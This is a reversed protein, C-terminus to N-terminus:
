SGCCTRRRWSRRKTCSPGSRHGWMNVCVYVCARAHFSCFLLDLVAPTLLQTLWVEEARMGENEAVRIYLERILRRVFFARMNRQPCPRACVIVATHRLVGGMRVQLLQAAALRRRWRWARAARQIKRAKGREVRMM